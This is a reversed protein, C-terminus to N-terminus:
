SQALVVYSQITTMEDAAPDAKHACQQLFSQGIGMGM